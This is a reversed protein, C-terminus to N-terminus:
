RTDPPVYLVAAVDDSPAADTVDQKSLTPSTRPADRRDPKVAGAPGRHIRMTRRGRHSPRKRFCGFALRQLQRVLKTSM